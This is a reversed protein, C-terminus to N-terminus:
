FSPLSYPLQILSLDTDLAPSMVTGPGAPAPPPAATLGPSLSATYGSLLLQSRRTLSVALEDQGQLSSVLLVFVAAGSGERGGIEWQQEWRGSETSGGM